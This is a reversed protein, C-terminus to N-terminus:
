IYRRHLPVRNRRNNPAHGVQHEVLEIAQVLGERAVAQERREGGLGAAQDLGGRGDDIQLQLRVHKAAALIDLDLRNGNPDVIIEIDTSSDSPRETSTADIPRSPATPPIMLQPCAGAKELATTSTPPGARRTGM